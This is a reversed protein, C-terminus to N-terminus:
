ARATASRRRSVERRAARHAADRVQLSGTPTPECDRPHPAPNAATIDVATESEFAAIVQLKEQTGYSGESTQVILTQVDLPIDDVVSYDTAHRKVQEIRYDFRRGDNVFVQVTMGLLEQGDNRESANLLPLFMGRQAHASIYTIGDEYPQGFLTIYAAVDCFPYSPPPQLDGSVVPLDIGLDRIVIRSAFAPPQLPPVRPVTPGPTRQVEPTETPQQGAPSGTAPASVVPTPTTGQATPGGTAAPGTCAGVFVSLAVLPAFRSLSHM